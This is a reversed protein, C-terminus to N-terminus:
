NLMFSVIDGGYCKGGWSGPECILHPVSHGFYKLTICPFYKKKHIIVDLEKVSFSSCSIGERMKFVM